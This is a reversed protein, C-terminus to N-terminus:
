PQVALVHDLRDARHAPDYCRIVPPLEITEPSASADAATVAAERAQVSERIDDALPCASILVPLLTPAKCKGCPRLLADSAATSRRTYDVILGCEGCEVGNPDATIIAVNHRGVSDTRRAQEAVRAGEAQVDDDSRVLDDATAQAGARTPRTM